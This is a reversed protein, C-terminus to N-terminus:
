KVFLKKVEGNAYKAINFGKKLSSVETGSVTYIAVPAATEADEVSDIDTPEQSSETGFYTLRFNDAKFWTDSSVMIEVDEGEEVEFIISHDEAVEQGDAMIYAAGYGNASLAIVNDASSSLLAALEYTGAPLAKLTQKVWFGGEIASGNWTNFVYDGDAPTMVYTSSSIPAAKTDGTAKTNWTWGNLSGEGDGEFSPNTIVRTLDIGNEDSAGNYAPIKLAASTTEVKTILAEIEENTLENVAEEDIEDELAEAASIAEDSAGEVYEEYTTTFADVAATLSAMVEVNKKAREYAAQLATIAASMEADSGGIYESADETAAIAADSEKANMNDANETVFNEVETCLNTLEEELVSADVANYTLTFSYWVVWSNAEMQNAKVGFTVEGPEPLATSVSKKLVATYDENEFVNRSAKQSNPVYMGDGVGTKDAFANEDNSAIAAINTLLEKNNGAFVYAGPIDDGNTFTDYNTSQDAYRYYAKTSLTYTGAPMDQLTCSVTFPSQNWVEATGYQTKFNSASGYNWEKDPVDSGQLATESYTYKLQDEFLISIDLGKELAEGSAVAADWAKKVGEKITTPLSAITEEIKETTWNTSNLADSVEDQMDLLTANLSGYNGADYREAAEYLDNDYFDQLKKYATISANVNDMLANIADYAAQNATADASQSVVLANGAGVVSRFEEKLESYFNEELMSQATAVAAQLGLLTPDIDLEGVYFLQIGDIFFHPMSGSGANAATYGMTFNGATAETLEFTIDEQLWKGVEFQTKEGLYEEGNDQIFGMLNKSVTGTGGANYYSIRLTYKGAPLNVHQTYQSQASWVSVFGLVKGETSGDSLSTPPLFAAGGLFAQGGVPFVGCARGNNTGSYNEQTASEDCPNSSVWGSLSMMGYHNVKRSNSGNPDKMDYDYTCIGDDDPLAEDETFHANRIFFASLDTTAAENLAKQNEIADLVESLTANANNYVARSDTVNAGLNEGKEILILLEAKADDIEAQQLPTPDISWLEVHDIFIHPAGGSGYNGSKYGLSIKGSTEAKLLFPVVDEQWSNPVFTTTGSVYQTGDNAIFGNYNPNVESGGSGNFYKVVLMYAGAPLTVDQTYQLGAGWVAVLGLCTGTIGEDANIYPAYYAGGLGTNEGEVADDIYAFIGSAKSNAGDTRATSSSNEMVRINDSPSSATWGTVPQMGFLGVAGEVGSGAGEDSMDYDYTCIKEVGSVAADATFDANTLKTSTLNTIKTYDDVSQASLGMTMAGFLVSLLLRHKM